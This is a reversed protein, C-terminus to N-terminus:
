KTIKIKNKLSIRKISIVATKMRINQLRRDIQIKKMLMKLGDEDVELRGIEDEGKRPIRIRKRKKEAQETM